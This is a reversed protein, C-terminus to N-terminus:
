EIGLTRRVMAKTLDDASRYADIINKEAKSYKYNDSLGNKLLEYATLSELQEKRSHLWNNMIHNTYTGETDLIRNYRSTVEDGTVFDRQTSDYARRLYLSSEDTESWGLLYEASVDLAKAVKQIKKLSIKDGAGEIQSISSRNTWGCKKALDEQSYGLEIRKSSIRDAITM